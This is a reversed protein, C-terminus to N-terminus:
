SLSKCCGECAHLRIVPTLVGWGLYIIFQNLTM